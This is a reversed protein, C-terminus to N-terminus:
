YSPCKSADDMLREKCGGGVWGGVWGADVPDWSVSGVVVGVILPHRIGDDRGCCRRSPRLVADGAIGINMTLINNM